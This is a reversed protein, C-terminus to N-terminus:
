CKNKVSQRYLRNLTCTLLPHSINPDRPLDEMDKPQFYMYYLIMLFLGIFFSMFVGIPAAELYWLELTYDVHVYWLGIMLINEIFVLSYYATVYLISDGGSNLKFLFFINFAAALFEIGYNDCCRNKRNGPIKYDTYERKILYADQRYLWYLMVCYHLAAMIFIYYGYESAFLSIALSRSVIMGIQWLIILLYGSWSLRPKRVRNPPPDYYIIDKGASTYDAIALSLSIVSVVVALATVVKRTPDTIEEVVVVYLQLLLQPASELFAEILRLFSIDRYRDFSYPDQKRQIFLRIVRYIFGVQLLHLLFVLIYERTLLLDLPYFEPAFDIQEGKGAVDEEEEETLPELNVSAKLSKESYSPPLKSFSTERKLKKNDSDEESTVTIIPQLQISNNSQKSLNKSTNRGKTKKRTKANTWWNHNWQLPRINETPKCRDDFRENVNRRLDNNMFVVYGWTYLGLSLINIIVTPCVIFVVTAIFYSLAYENGERWSQYHEYAAVSDIVVDAIYFFCTGILCLIRIPPFVHNKDNWWWEYCRKWLSM